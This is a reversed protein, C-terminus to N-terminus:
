SRQRCIRRGLISSHGLLFSPMLHSLLAFPSNVPKAKWLSWRTPFMGKEVTAHVMIDMMNEVQACIDAVVHLANELHLCVKHFYEARGTLHALYKYEM